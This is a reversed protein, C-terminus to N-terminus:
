SIEKLILDLIVGDLDTETQNVSERDAPMILKFLLNGNNNPLTQPGRLQEVLEALCLFRLINTLHKDCDLCLSIKSFISMRTDKMKKFNYENRRLPNDSEILLVKPFTGRTRLSNRAEHLKALNSSGQCVNKIRELLEDQKEVGWIMRYIIFGVEHCFTFSSKILPLKKTWNFNADASFTWEIQFLIDEVFYYVEAFNHMEQYNQPYFFRRDYRKLYNGKCFCEIIKETVQCYRQFGQNRQLVPHKREFADLILNFIKKNFSIEQVAALFEIFNDCALLYILIQNLSTEDLESSLKLLGDFGAWRFNLLLLKNWKELWCRKSNSFPLEFFLDPDVANYDFASSVIMQMDGFDLLAAESFDKEYTEELNHGITFIYDVETEKEKSEFSEKSKFFIPTSFIDIKNISKFLKSEMKANMRSDKLFERAKVLNLYKKEMKQNLTKIANLVETLSREFAKNYHEVLATNKKEILGILFKEFHNRSEWVAFDDIEPLYNAFIYSILLNTKKVERISFRDRLIPRTMDKILQVLAKMREGQFCETRSPFSNNRISEIMALLDETNLNCEFMSILEAYLIGLSYIDDKQQYKRDVAVNPARYLPTGGIVANSLIYSQTSTSPSSEEPQQNTLPRAFGFDGVKVINHMGLFSVLINTAKLDRHILNNEHMIEVADFVEQMLVSIFWDGYLHSEPGDKLKIALQDITMEYLPMQICFRSVNQQKDIFVNYCETFLGKSDLQSLIYYEKKYQQVIDNENTNRKIEIEKIAYIKSSFKEEYANVTGYAGRGIYHKFQFQSNVSLIKSVNISNQLSISTEVDPSIKSKKKTVEPWDIFPKKFPCAKIPVSPQFVKSKFFEIESSSLERGRKNSPGPRSIDESINTANSCLSSLESISELRQRCIERNQIAIDCKNNVLASLLDSYVNNLECPTKWALKEAVDDSGTIAKFNNFVEIRESTLENSYSAM